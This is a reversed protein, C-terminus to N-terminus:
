EDNKKDYDSNSNYVFNYEGDYVDDNDDNIYDNDNNVYYLCEYRNKLALADTKSVFFCDEDQM